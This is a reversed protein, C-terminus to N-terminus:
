NEVSYCRVWKFVGINSFYKWYQKQTVEQLSDSIWTMSKGLLLCTESKGKNAKCKWVGPTYCRSLELPYFNKISNQIFFVLIEIETCWFIYEGKRPFLEWDHQQSFVAAERARFCSFLWTYSTVKWTTLYKWIEMLFLKYPLLCRSGLESVTQWNCVLRQYKSRSSFEKTRLM